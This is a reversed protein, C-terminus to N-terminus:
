PTLLFYVSSFPYLIIPPLLFLFFFEEHFNFWTRRILPFLAHDFDLMSVNHTLDLSCYVGCLHHLLKFLFWIVCCCSGLTPRQTQFILLGVLLWDQLLTMFTEYMLSRGFDSSDFSFIFQSISTFRVMNYVYYLICYLL